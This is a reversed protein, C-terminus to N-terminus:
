TPNIPTYGAQFTGANQQTEYTKLTNQVLAIIAAKVSPANVAPSSAWAQLRADEAPTTTFTTVAM